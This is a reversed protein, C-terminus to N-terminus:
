TIILVIDLTKITIEVTIMKEYRTPNHFYPTYWFVLQLVSIWKKNKNGIKIGTKYISLTSHVPQM